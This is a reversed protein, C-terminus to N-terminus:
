TGNSDRWLADFPFRKKSVLCFSSYLWRRAQLLAFLNEDPADKSSSRDGGLRRLIGPTGASWFVTTLACFHNLAAYSFNTYLNYVILIKKVYLLARLLKASQHARGM